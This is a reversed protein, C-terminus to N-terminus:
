HSCSAKLRKIKNLMICLSNQPEEFENFSAETAPKSLAPFSLLLSCLVALVMLFIPSAFGKMLHKFKKQQEPTADGLAVETLLKQLDCGTVEALSVCQAYTPRRKGNRWASTLQSTVGKIHLELRQQQTLNNIVELLM